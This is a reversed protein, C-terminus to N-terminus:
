VAQERVKRYKVIAILMLGLGVVLFAIIGQGGTSPLFGGQSVNPVKLLASDSYSGNKIEFPFDDALKVFGNPAKTERLFYNGKELGTVKIKGDNEGDNVTTFKKADALSGGSPVETWIPAGGDVTQKLYEDKGNNKRIVVFEAGALTQDEKGSEHKLFKHGGTGFGPPPLVNRNDDTNGDRTMQVVFNNKIEQDVPTHETMSVGYTVEIKKGAFQKLYEATAKSNAFETPNSTSTEANLKAALTFGAYDSYPSTTNKSTLAVHNYFTTLDAGVLENGGIVIKSIGEFKVGTQSVQDDLVFKNYRTQQVSTGSDTLIEGIQSPFTFSAKYNILKGVEFTYFTEGSPVADLQKGTEDVLIKEPKEKDDIKNKPYLHITSLETAGDMAPLVLIIPNSYTTYGPPLTEEFYYVKYIGGATRKELNSFRVDGNTGTVNSAVNTANGKDLTFTKMLAETKTKAVADTESGTLGLKSYFDKTVDWATFTVGALGQYHDFENMEKGTNPIETNPFEDMKKKHLTVAVTEAAEANESLGFMGTLLPVLCIIATLLGTWKVKYKM